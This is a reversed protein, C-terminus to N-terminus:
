QGAPSGLLTLAVIGLFPGAVLAPGYPFAPGRGSLRWALGILVGLLGGALLGAFLGAWSAAASAAGVVPALRVDGFGFGRGVRWLTWFLAATAGAGVAARLLAEPAWFAVVVAGAATLLWGVQALRRPLYGTRADILASLVGTTALGLWVPAAGPILGVALCGAAAMALFALVAFTGTTLPRYFDAPEGDPPALRRMLSPVGPAIAAALLPPLILWPTM